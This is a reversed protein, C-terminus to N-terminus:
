RCWQDLPNYWTGSVRFPLRWSDASGTQLTTNIGAFTVRQCEALLHPRKYRVCLPPLRVSLSLFKPSENGTTSRTTTSSWDINPHHHITGKEGWVTNMPIRRQYETNAAPNSTVITLAGYPHCGMELIISLLFKPVVPFPLSSIPPFFPLFSKYFFFVITFSRLTVHTM